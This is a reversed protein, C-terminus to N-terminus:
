YGFGLGKIVRNDRILAGHSQKGTYTGFRNRSNVNFEVLWGYLHQGDKGLDAPKPDGQWDIKASDADVLVGQMWNWVIEKYNKPYPGCLSPDIAAPTQAFVTIVTWCCGVALLRKVGVDFGLCCWHDIFIQRWGKASREQFISLLLHPRRDSFMVKMMFLPRSQLKGAQFM